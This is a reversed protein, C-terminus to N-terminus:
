IEKLIFTYQKKFDRLQLIRRLFQECVKGRKLQILLNSSIMNLKNNSKLVCINRHKLYLYNPKRSKQHPLSFNFSYASESRGSNTNLWVEIWILNIQTSIKLIYKRNTAGFHFNNEDQISFKRLQQYPYVSTLPKWCSLRM